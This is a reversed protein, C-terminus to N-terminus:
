FPLYSLLGTAIVTTIVPAPGTGGLEGIGIFVQGDIDIYKEEMERLPYKGPTIYSLVKKYSSFAPLISSNM